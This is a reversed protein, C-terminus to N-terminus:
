RCFWDTLKREKWTIGFNPLSIANKMLYDIVLLLLFPLPIHCQQVGAKVKFYLTTGSGIKVYPWSNAYLELFIDIYGQSASHM